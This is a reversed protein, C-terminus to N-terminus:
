RSSRPRSPPAAAGTGSEAEERPPARRRDPPRSPRVPLTQVSTQYTTYRVAVRGSGHKTLENRLKQRNSCLCAIYARVERSCADVARKNAANVKRDARNQDNVARRLRGKLRSPSPRRAM